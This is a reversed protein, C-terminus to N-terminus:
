KLMLTKIVELPQEKKLKEVKEDKKVIKLQFREQGDDYIVGEAQQKLQPLKLNHIFM